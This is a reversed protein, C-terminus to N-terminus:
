GLIMFKQLLIPYVIFCVVVALVVDFIFLYLGSVASSEHMLMLM